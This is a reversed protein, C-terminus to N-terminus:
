SWNKLPKKNAIDRTEDHNGLIRLVNRQGGGGGGMRVGQGDHCWYGLAGSGGGGRAGLSTQLM